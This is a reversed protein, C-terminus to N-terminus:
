PGEELKYSQEGPHDKLIYMAFILCYFNDHSGFYIHEKQALVALTFCRQSLFVNLPQVFATLNKMFVWNQLSLPKM